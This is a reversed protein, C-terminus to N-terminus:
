EKGKRKYKEKIKVWTFSDYAPVIATVWKNEKNKICFKVQFLVDNISLLDDRKVCGDLILKAIKFNM